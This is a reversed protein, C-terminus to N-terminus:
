KKEEYISYGFIDYFIDEITNTTYYEYGAYRNYYEILINKVFDADLNKDM